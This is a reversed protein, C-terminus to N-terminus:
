GLKFNSSGTQHCTQKRAFTPRPLTQKTRHGPAAESVGATAADPIEQPHSIALRRRGVGARLACMLALCRMHFCRM